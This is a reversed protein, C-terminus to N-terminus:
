SVHYNRRQYQNQSMASQDFLDLQIPHIQKQQFIPMRIKVHEVIEDSQTIICYSMYSQNCYRIINQLWNKAYNTKKIPFGYTTLSGRDRPKLYFQNAVQVVGEGYLEYYKGVQILLLHSPFLRSFYQIQHQFKNFRCLCRPIRIYEKSLSICYKYERIRRELDLRLRYTDAYHFHALYSNIRSQFERYRVIDSNFQKRYFPYKLQFSFPIYEQIIKEYKRLVRRRILTYRPKIYYGLFDIGKYVSIHLNDVSFVDLSSSIM